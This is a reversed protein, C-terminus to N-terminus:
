LGCSCRAKGSRLPMCVQAMRAELEAIRKDQETPTAGAGGGGPSVATQSSSRRQGQGVGDVDGVPTTPRVSPARGQQVATVSHALPSPRQVQPVGSSSSRGGPTPRPPPRVPPRVPQQQQAPGSLQRVHGVAGNPRAGYANGATFTSTSMSTSPAQSGPRGGAVHYRGSADVTIEPLDDEEQIPRYANPKFKKPPPPPRVYATRPAQAQAQSPAHGAGNAQPVTPYQVAPRSATAQQQQPQPSSSHHQLPVQSLALTYRDEADRITALVEETLDIGGDDDFDDSSPTPPM